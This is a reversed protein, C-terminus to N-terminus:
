ILELHFSYWSIMNMTHIFDNISQRNLEAMRTELQRLEIEKKLSFKCVPCPDTGPENMENCYPCVELEPEDTGLIIQLIEGTALM